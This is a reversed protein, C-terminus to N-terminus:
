SYILKMMSDPVSKLPKQKELDIVFFDFSGESYLLGADHTTIKFKAKVLSGQVDEVFSEVSVHSTSGPIMKRFVSEFRVVFFGYGEKEFFDPAIGFREELFQARSTFVYDPYYITNVHQYRDIDSFRIQIEKKFVIPTLSM